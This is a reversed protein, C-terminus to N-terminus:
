RPQKQSALMERLEAPDMQFVFFETIIIFVLGLASSWTSLLTHVNNLISSFLGQYDMVMFCVAFLDLYHALFEHFPVCDPM